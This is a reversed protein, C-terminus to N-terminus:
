TALRYFDLHERCVLIDRLDRHYESPRQWKYNWVLKGEPPGGPWFELLVPTFVQNPEQFTCDQIFCFYNVTLKAKKERKGLALLGRTLAHSIGFNHTKFKFVRVDEAKLVKVLNECHCFMKSPKCFTGGERTITHSISPHGCVCIHPDTPTHKLKENELTVSESDYGLVKLLERADKM